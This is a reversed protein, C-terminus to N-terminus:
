THPPPCHATGAGAKCVDGVVAEDDGTTTTVDCSALEDSSNSSIEDRRELEDKEPTQREVM